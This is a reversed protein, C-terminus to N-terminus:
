SVEVTIHTQSTITISHQQTVKVSLPKRGQLANVPLLDRRPVQQPSRRIAVPITASGALRPGTAPSLARSFSPSLVRATVSGSWAPRPQGISPSVAPSFTAPVLPASSWDPFAFTSRQSL